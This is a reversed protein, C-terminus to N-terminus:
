KPDRSPVIGRRPADRSGVNWEVDGAANVFVRVLRAADVSDPPRPGSATIISRDGTVGLYEGRVVENLMWGLRWLSPNDMPDRWWAFTHLFYRRGPVPREVDLPTYLTPLPVWGPLLGNAIRKESGNYTVVISSAAIDIRQGPGLAFSAAIPEALPGGGCLLMAGGGSEGRMADAIEMAPQALTHTSRAVDLFLACANGRNPDVGRGSYYLAALLFQAAPDADTGQSLPRFIAAAAKYDGRFMARVGDEVPAAQAQATLRLLSLIAILTVPM